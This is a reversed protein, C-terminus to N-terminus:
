TGQGPNALPVVLAGDGDRCAAGMGFEEEIAGHGFGGDAEITLLCAVPGIAVIGEAHIDGGVHLSAVIQELDIQLIDFLARAPIGSRADVARDGEDGSAIVPDVGPLGEDAGGLETGVLGRHFDGYATAAREVGTQAEFHFQAIGLATEHSM